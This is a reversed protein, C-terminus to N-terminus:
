SASGTPYLRKYEQKSFKDKIKRLGQQIKQETATNPYITLQRFCETNLLAM